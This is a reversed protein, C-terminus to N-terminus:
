PCGAAYANGFCIYDFVNFQGDGNCDAYQEGSTYANGFCIYDFINLTGTNDCDPYCASEITFPTGTVTQFGGLAFTQDYVNITPNAVAYNQSWLPGFNKHVSTSYVLSNFDFDFWGHAAKNEFDIDFIFDTDNRLTANVLYKPTVTVPGSILSIQPIESVPVPGLTQTTYTTGNSLMVNVPVDFYLEVNLAADLDFAQQYGIDHIVDFDIVDYGTDFSVNSSMNVSIGAGTLPSGGTLASDIDLLVNLLSTSGDASIHNNTGTGSANIRWDGVTFQAAPALPNGIEIVEGVGGVDNGKWYLRGNGNPNFGFLTERIDVSVLPYSRHQFTGRDIGGFFATTASCSVKAEAFLNNAFALIGDLHAHASPSTTQLSSTPKMVASANLQFYEGLPAANPAEIGIDYNLAADVLGSNLGFAIGVGLEGWASAAFRTDVTVGSASVPAPDVTLSGTSIGYTYDEAFDYVFGTGSAWMSQQSTIFLANTSSVQTQACASGAVVTILSASSIFCRSVRSAAM